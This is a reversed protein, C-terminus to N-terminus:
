RAGSQDKENDMLILHSALGRMSRLWGILAGTEDVGLRVFPVFPKVIYAQTISSKLM